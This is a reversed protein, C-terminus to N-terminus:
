HQRLYNYGAFIALSPVAPTAGERVTYGDSTGHSSKEKGDWRCSVVRIHWLNCRVGRSVSESEICNACVSM